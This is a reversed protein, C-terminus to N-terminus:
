GSRSHHNRHHKGEHHNRDDNLATSLVLLAEQSKQTGHQGERDQGTGTKRHASARKPKVPVLFSIKLIRLHQSLDFLSISVSVPNVLFDGFGALRVLLEALHFRYRCADIGIGVAIM